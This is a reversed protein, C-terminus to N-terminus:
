AAIRAFLSTRNVEDDIWELDFEPHCTRIELESYEQKKNRGLRVKHKFKSRSYASFILLMSKITRHKTNGEVAVYYCTENETDDNTALNIDALATFDGKRNNWILWYSNKM